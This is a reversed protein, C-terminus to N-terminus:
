SSISRVAFLDGRFGYGYMVTHSYGHVAAHKALRLFQRKPAVENIESFSAEKYQQRTTILPLRNVLRGAPIVKTLYTPPPSSADCHAPSDATGPCTAYHPMNGLARSSSLIENHISGLAARVIACALGASTSTRAQAMKVVAPTLRSATTVAWFTEMVIPVEFV